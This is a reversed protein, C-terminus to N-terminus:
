LKGANLGDLSNIPINITQIILHQYSLYEFRVFQVNKCAVCEVIMMVKRKLLVLLYLELKGESKLNDTPKRVEAREGRLPVQEAPREYFSGEPFLNDSQRVPKAREGVPM